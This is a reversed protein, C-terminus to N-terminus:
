KTSQSFISVLFPNIADEEGEGEEEEVIEIEEEEEVTMEADIMGDEVLVEV